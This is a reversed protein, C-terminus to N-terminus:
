LSTMILAVADRNNAWGNSWLCIFYFMLAGRWQGKHHSDVPWRHIGRVFPWYSLSSKWTVALVPTSNNFATRQNGGHTVRTGGNMFHTTVDHHRWWVAINEANSARQAPFEDARVGQCLGTFRFKLTKKSRGSCVTARAISIGTIKYAMAGM